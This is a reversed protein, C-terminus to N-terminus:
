KVPLSLPIVKEGEVKDAAEAPEADSVAEKKPEPKPTPKKRIFSVGMM